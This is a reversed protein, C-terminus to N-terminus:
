ILMEAAKYFQRILNTVTCFDTSVTTNASPDPKLDCASLLEQLQPVLAIQSKRIPNLNCITVAPFPLQEFKIQLNDNKINYYKLASINSM